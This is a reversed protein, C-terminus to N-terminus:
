PLVILGTVLIMIISASILCSFYPVPNKVRIASITKKLYIGLMYGPYFAVVSFLAWYIVEAAIFSMVGGSSAFNRLYQCPMCALGAFYYSVGSLMVGSGARFCGNIGSKSKRDPLIGFALTMSAGLLMLAVVSNARCMPSCGLVPVIIMRALSTFVAIILFIGAKRYLGYGAAMMFVGAGTMVASAFPKEGMSLVDKFLVEFFGWIAGILLAVCIYDFVTDFGRGPERHSKLKM